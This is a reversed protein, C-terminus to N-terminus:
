SQRCIRSGVTCPAKTPADKFCMVEPHRTALHIAPGSIILDVTPWGREAVLTDLEHASAQVIEFSQEQLRAVYSADLEIVLVQCSEPLRDYLERTFSGTGPGLEVVHNLQDVEIGSLM